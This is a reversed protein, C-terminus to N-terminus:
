QAILHILLPPAQYTPYAEFRYTLNMSSHLDGDWVVRIIYALKLNSKFDFGSFFIFLVNLNMLSQYDDRIGDNVRIITLTDGEIICNFESNMLNHDIVRWDAILGDSPLKVDLSINTSPPVTALFM